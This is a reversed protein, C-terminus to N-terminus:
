QAISTLRAEASLLQADSQRARLRQNIDELAEEAEVWETRRQVDATLAEIYEPHQRVASDLKVETFKAGEAEWGARIAASVRAEVLKLSREGGYSGNGYLARLPAVRKVIEQREALLGELDAVMHLISM